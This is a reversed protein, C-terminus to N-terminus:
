VGQRRPKKWDREAYRRDFWTPKDGRSGICHGCHRAVIIRHARRYWERTNEKSFLDDEGKCGWPSKWISLFKERKSSPLYGNWDHRGRQLEHMSWLHLGTIANSLMFPQVDEEGSSSLTSHALRSHKCHRSRHWALQPRDLTTVSM